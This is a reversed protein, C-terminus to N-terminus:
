HLTAGSEGSWRALTVSDVILRNQYKQIARLLGRKVVQMKM